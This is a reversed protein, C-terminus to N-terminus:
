RLTWQAALSATDIIMSLAVPEGDGGPLAMALSVGIIASCAV